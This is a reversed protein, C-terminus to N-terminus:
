SLVLISSKIAKLVKPIYHMKLYWLANERLTLVRCKGPKAQALGESEPQKTGRYWWQYVSKVKALNGVDAGSGDVSM